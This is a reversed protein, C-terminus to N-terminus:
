NGKEFPPCILVEMDEVDTTIHEWDSINSGHCSFSTAGKGGEFDDYKGPQFRVPSSTMTLKRENFKNNTTSVCVDFILHHRNPKAFRCCSGSPITKYGNEVVVSPINWRVAVSKRLYLTKRQFILEWRGISRLLDGVSYWARPM